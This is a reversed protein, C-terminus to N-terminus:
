PKKPQKHPKLPTVTPPVRNPVIVGNPHHRTFVYLVKTRANCTAVMSPKTHWPYAAWGHPLPTILVTPYRQNLEVNARYGISGTSLHVLWGFVSVYEVNLVPKGCERIGKLGGMEHIFGALRSIEATRAKEGQLENHEWRLHAVAGPVVAATLGLAAALGLAWPAKFFRPIQTLLWGLGIAAIVISVVAPEFMYRPVGPLGKLSFAIEVIVWLVINGFLALILVNRGSPDSDKRRYRFAAWATAVGALLWVPWQNLAKFRSLTGIVKNSHLMRPSNAALDGAILPKQNTIEPIGFWAFLIILLCIFLFRFMERDQRLLWLAYLFLAPWAEPRGLSALTLAAVAWRRRGIVHFYIAALVCSVLPPDSQSSLIYHIYSYHTTDFIVFPMVAAFAGAAIAAWRNTGDEDVIRFVILAAFISGALSMAVVTTMWMWLQFHGFLAFPVTFLLPMPKWSPAGGLDLHLHLTQYGWIMWGYPDYGPRSHSLRVIAASVAIVLLAVIWWRYRRAFSVVPGTSPPAPAVTNPEETLM